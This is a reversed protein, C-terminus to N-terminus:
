ISGASTMRMVVSFAFRTYRMLSYLFRLLDNEPSGHATAGPSRGGANKHGRQITEPFCDKQIHESHKYFAGSKM